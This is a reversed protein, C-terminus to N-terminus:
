RAFTGVFASRKGRSMWRVGLGTGDWQDLEAVAPMSHSMESLPQYFVEENGCLHDKSSISRTEIGALNGARLMTKGFHGGDHSVQLTIPAVELRVVNKLLDGSMEQALGVLAKQQEASAKQDVILIAKAPYPNSYPDGLTAGAKVVGVVSLGDLSVGNFEGKNVRWALIAQDGALNMEGNAVCPGTWVDASRTEVYDGTIHQAQGTVSLGFVVTFLGAILLFRRM